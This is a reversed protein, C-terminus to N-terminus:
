HLSTHRHPSLSCHHTDTLPCHATILTWSPVIDITPNSESNDSSNLTHTNWHGTNGGKRNISKISATMTTWRLQRLIIYLLACQVVDNHSILEDLVAGLNRNHQKVMLMDWQLWLHHSWEEKWCLRGTHVDADSIIICICLIMASAWDDHYCLWHLTASVTTSQSHFSSSQSGTPANCQHIVVLNAGGEDMEGFMQATPSSKSTQNLCIPSTPLPANRNSNYHSLM